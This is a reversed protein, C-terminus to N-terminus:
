KVILKVGDIRLVQVITNEPIVFHPDDSRATWLVGGVSVAGTGLINNIEEKVIGEKGVVSAANMPESKASIRKKVIPYLFVIFAISTLLFVISQVAASAGLACAIVAFLAGAAFWVSVLGPFAAEIILAAAMVILWFFVSIGNTFM